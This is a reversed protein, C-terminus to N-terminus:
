SLKIPSYGFPMSKLFNRAQYNCVGDWLETKDQALDDISYMDLESKMLWYNM